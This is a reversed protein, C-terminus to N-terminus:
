NKYIRLLRNWFLFFCLTHTHTHTHTLCRTNDNDQSLNTVPSQMSLLHTQSNQYLCEVPLSLLLLCCGETCNCQRNARLARLARLAQTKINSFHFQDLPRGGIKAESPVRNGRISYKWPRQYEYYISRLILFLIEARFLFPLTIGTYYM